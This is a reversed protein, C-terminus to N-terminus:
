VCVASPELRSRTVIFGTGGGIRRAGSTTVMLAVTVGGTTVRVSRQPSAMAVSTFMSSTSIEGSDLMTRSILAPTAATVAAVSYVSADSALLNVKNMSPTFNPRQAQWGSPM